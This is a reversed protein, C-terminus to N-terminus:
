YTVTVIRGAATAAPAPNAGAPTPAPAAEVSVSPTEGSTCAAEVRGDRHGATSATCSPLVVVRVHLQTQALRADPPAAALAVAALLFAAM